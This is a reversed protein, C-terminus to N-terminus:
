SLPQGFAAPGICPPRPDARRESIQFAGRRKERQVRQADLPPPMPESSSFDLYARAKKRRRQRLQLLLLQPAPANPWHHRPQASRLPRQQSPSAYDPSAADRDIEAENTLVIDTYDFAKAV